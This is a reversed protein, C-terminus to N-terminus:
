PRYEVGALCWDTTNLASPDSCGSRFYGQLTADTTGFRADRIGYDLPYIAYAADNKLTAKPFPELLLAGAAVGAGEVNPGEDDQVRPKDVANAQWAFRVAHRLAHLLWGYYEIKSRETALGLRIVGPYVTDPSGAQTDLVLTIHSFLSVIDIPYGYRV